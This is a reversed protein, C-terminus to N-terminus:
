GSTKAPVGRYKLPKRQFKPINKGEPYSQNYRFEAYGIVKQVRLSGYPANWFTVEAVKNYEVDAHQTTINPLLHYNPPIEETM